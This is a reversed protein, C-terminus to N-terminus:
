RRDILNKAGELADTALLAYSLGYRSKAAFVLGNTRGVTYETQSAYDKSVVFKEKEFLEIKVGKYEM